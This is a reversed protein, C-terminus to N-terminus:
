QRNRVVASDQFKMSAIEYSSTPSGKQKMEFSIGVSAVEGGIETCSFTLADACSEMSSVMTVNNSTLTYVTTASASAIRCFGDGPNAFSYLTTVQNDLGEFVLSNAGCATVRDASQIMRVMAQLAYDGNQKIDKLLETKASNRLTTIFAQVILLSLIAVIAVSVLIEVLTFANQKNKMKMTMEM